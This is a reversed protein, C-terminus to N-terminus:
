ASLRHQGGQSGALRRWRNTERTCGGGEPGSQRLCGLTLQVFLDTHKTPDRLLRGGGTMAAPRLWERDVGGRTEDILVGVNEKAGVLSM